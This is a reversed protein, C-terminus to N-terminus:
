RPDVVYSDSFTMKKLEDDFDQRRIGNENQRLTISFLGRLVIYRKLCGIENDKYNLWKKKDSLLSLYLTKIDFSKYNTIRILM